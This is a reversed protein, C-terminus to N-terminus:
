KDRHASARERKEGGSSATPSTSRTSNSEGVSVMDGRYKRRLATDPQGCTCSCAIPLM